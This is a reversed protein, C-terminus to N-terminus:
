HHHHSRGRSVAFVLSGFAVFSALPTVYYIALIFCSEGTTEGTTYFRIVAGVIFLQAAVAIGLSSLALKM